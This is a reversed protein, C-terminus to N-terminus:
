WKLWTDAGAMIRTDVVFPLIYSPLVSTFLGPEGLQKEVRALSFM